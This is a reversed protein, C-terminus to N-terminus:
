LDELDSGVDHFWRGISNAEPWPSTKELRHKLMKMIATHDALAHLVMSVQKPTPKDSNQYLGSRHQRDIADLLRTTADKIM